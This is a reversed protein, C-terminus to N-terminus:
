AAHLVGALKAELTRASFPKVMCGSVGAAQAVAISEIASEDTIMIFPISGLAPEARMRSLLELGSMTRLHWDSIVLAYRREKMMELARGGDTAEDVEPFGLQRLLAKLIRLTTKYDDVVLIPGNREVDTM